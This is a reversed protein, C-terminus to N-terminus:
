KTKKGSVKNQVQEVRNVLSKISIKMQSMSSNMESHNKKLIEISISKMKSIQMINKIENM